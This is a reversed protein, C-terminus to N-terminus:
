KDCGAQEDHSALIRRKLINHLQSHDVEYKELFNAIFDDKSVLFLSLDKTGEKGKGKSSTLVLQQQKDNNCMKHESCFNNKSVFWVSSCDRKQLFQVSFPCKCEKKSKENYTSCKFVYEKGRKVRLRKAATYGKSSSFLVVLKICDEKAEVETGIQLM